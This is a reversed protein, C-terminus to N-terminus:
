GGKKTPPREGGVRYSPTVMRREDARLAVKQGLIIDTEAIVGNQGHFLFLKQSPLQVDGIVHVSFPSGGPWSGNAIIRGGATAAISASRHQHGSLSFHIPMDAMQAFQQVKRELSVLNGKAVGAGPISDGHHLLFRWDGHEVIMFPGEAIIVSTAELDRLLIGIVRYSVYDMNSRWHLESKKGLRGHNGPMCYVEVEEFHRAWNRIMCAFRHAAEFVQDTLIRDIQLAQGLFIQEGTVMDGLLNVVLKKMQWARGYLNRFFLVREELRDAADLFKQFDYGESMGVMLNPDNYEGVHVDSVLLHLEASDKGRTPATKLPKYPKLAPLRKIASEVMEVTEHLMQDRYNGLRPRKEDWWPVGHKALYAARLEEKYSRWSGFLKVAARESVSSDQARPWRENRKVWAIGEVLLSERTWQGLVSKGM